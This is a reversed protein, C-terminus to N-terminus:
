FIVKLSHTYPTYSVYIFKNLSPGWGWSRENHIHLYELIRFFRIDLISRNGLVESLPHGVQILQLNGAAQPTLVM